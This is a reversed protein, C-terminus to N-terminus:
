TNRVIIRAVVCLEKDCKLIAKRFATRASRPDKVERKELDSVVCKKYGTALDAGAFTIGREINWDSMIKRHKARDAAHNKRAM